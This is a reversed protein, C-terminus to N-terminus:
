VDKKGGKKSKKPYLFKEELELPTKAKGLKIYDNGKIEYLYYLTRQENSTMIHTAVSGEKQYQTWQIEAKPIKM